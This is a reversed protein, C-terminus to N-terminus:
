SHIHYPSFGDDSSEDESSAYEDISSDEVEFRTGTRRYYLWCNMCVVEEEDYVCDSRIPVTEPYGHVDSGLEVNSESESRPLAESHNFIVNGTMDPKHGRDNSSDAAESIGSVDAHEKDRMESNTRSPDDPDMRQKIRELMHRWYPQIVVEHSFKNCDYCTRQRRTHLDPRAHYEFLDRLTEKDWGPHVFANSELEQDIFTSLDVEIGILGHLWDAFAWSSYMALSLPSEKEPTFDKDFGLLHLNPGKTLVRSVPEPNEAYALLNHLATYGDTAYLAVNIIHADGLKLLLNSAPELGAHPRLTCDLLSAFESRIYDAKLEYTLLKLMWLLLASQAETEGGICAVGEYLRFLVWWGGANADSFDMSDTLLRLTDFANSLTTYTVNTSDSALLMPTRVVIDTKIAKHPYFLALVARWTPGGYTLANIDAGASKLMECLEPHYFQAAFKVRANSVKVLLCHGM